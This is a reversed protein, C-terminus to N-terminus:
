HASRLFGHVVGDAGIFAGVIDGHLNMGFATTGFPAAPVDFLTYSTGGLVFGHLAAGPNVCPAAFCAGGALDGAANVGGTWSYWGPATEVAGPVDVTAFGGADRVFVHMLEDKLAYRGFLRGADDTGWVETFIAQPFDVTIFRGSELVFGHVGGKAPRSEDPYCSAGADCYSGTIVGTASIGIAHTQAAGPFDIPGFGGGAFLYGRDKGNKRDRYFGVVAGADNIGATKTFASGPYDFITLEGESLLFGRHTVGDNFDGVILGSANIGTAVTATAGPADIQTYSQAFAVPGGAMLMAMTAVLLKM